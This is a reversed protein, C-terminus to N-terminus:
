KNNEIDNDSVGDPLRVGGDAIAFTRRFTLSDRELPPLTTSQTSKVGEDSTAVANDGDGTSVAPGSTGIQTTFTTGPSSVVPNVATTIASTYGPSTSNIIEGMNGSLSFAALRYNALDTNAGAEYNAATIQATVIKDKGATADVFQGLTQNVTISEGAVLGGLKYNGATLIATTSGDGTKSVPGQLTVDFARKDIDVTTTATTSYVYNGADLGTAAIGSISVTKGTGANKDSASGSGTFAVQDGELIDNSAVSVNLLASGDYTKGQASATVAVSKAAFDVTTATTASYIYNGADSGSALIGAVAVAKGNGANKDSARGAGSFIVADGTVIGSSSLVVSVSTSGDYIKDVGEADVAVSKRAVNTKTLAQTNYAYNGEDTGSGTIDSVIVVKDQGANKDSTAGRGSFTVTDGDVIGNSSLTILVSTAGDYIKDGSQANVVISKKAIDVIATGTSAYTYNGADSGLAAINSVAVSKGAGANKDVANGNGFFAVTDGTIIGDSALDVGVVASGDYTKNQGIGTVTISKKAINVSATTPAAVDYNSADTGTAAFNSMTVTKGQGANKDSATGTASFAVTDGDIIGASALDVGVSTSGDYTKNQGSAAVTIAKKAVDVTTAVPATVDYNSADSGMTAFSGITVTKGQGANKDSAAGTGTFTVTDGNVIGNSSLGVSVTASGDYTKNQGTAAVSIAKKAVDAMTSATTSFDYNAADADTSAIGSVNVLKGTGANKNAMAGTGTFTVTDGNLIDSSAVTVAIANSGDYTKNTGTAAVSIAKKAVDATTSATTSYDYNAADADTSAINSVSVTKAQGANKNAMTGTGTFTVTDGQIIDSSAITVNASTSGDYTKNTGTAAVSIAKKAVDATTSATTSFDYNAADADTSAIGSVSVTKAQGANKNAMAGAGTFTVMDSNLIDSSAVTVAIANSGDYTKNTGTAAVSITKKAVDATTSATTSFDYNAADADTSAINSVSVTKAQGANKNAMAGAGTFTVTDGNLIDSSAVTVAIANSGDYTKNTGTAAVSIAKRAIDGLLTEGALQYNSVLGGHNGDSLTYTTLVSKGNAATKNGFAGSASVGLEENLVLGDLTGATISASTLGDYTKGTVASGTISLAKKTVEVTLSIPPTLDYNHADAGSLVGNGAVTVAKGAGVNKDSISGTIGSADITLVDGHQASGAGATGTLSVDTTGDYERNVASLGTVAISAKTVDINESSAAYQYGLSDTVTGNLVYAYTGVQRKGAGSLTGPAGLTLTQNTTLKAFTDGDIFGSYNGAGLTVTPDAAGYVISSLNSVVSIVPARSYFFWNGSAAYSPSAGATYTENYHKNYNTLGETTFTPNASYVLYRSGTGLGIGAAGRNNVFNRGAALTITNSTGTTQVNGAGSGLNIDATNGRAEITINGSSRVTNDVTVGGAKIDISSFATTAGVNGITLDANAGGDYGTTDITLAGTGNLAKGNLTLQGADNPGNEDNPRDTFFSINSNTAAFTSDGEFTINGGNTSLAGTLTIVGGSYTQAGETAIDGLTIARDTSSYIRLTDLYGAAGYINGISLNGSSTNDSKGITLAVNGMYSFGAISGITMAGSGSDLTLSRNARLSGDFTMAGNTATLDGWLNIDRASYSQAGSTKVVGLNIQRSYNYYNNYNNPDPYPGTLGLTSITLTSATFESTSNQGGLTVSGALAYLQSASADFTAARDAQHTVEGDFRIDGVFMANNSADTDMVFDVNNYGVNTTGKAWFSGGLLVQRAYLNIMGYQPAHGGPAYQSSFADLRLDSLYSGARNDIMDGLSISGVFGQGSSANLNLGYSGGRSSISGGYSAYNTNLSIAGSQGQFSGSGIYVYTLLDIGHTGTLSIDRGSRSLGGNLELIKAYLSFDGGGYATSEDLRITRQSANLSFNRSNYGLVTNNDGVILETGDDSFNIDDDGILGIAITQNTQELGLSINVSKLYDQTVEQINVNGQQTNVTLKANEVGAAEAIQIDYGNAGLTSATPTPDNSVNFTVDGGTIQAIPNGSDYLNQAAIVGTANFRTIGLTLNTNYFEGWLTAGAGMRISDDGLLIDGDRANLTLSRFNRSLDIGTTSGFTAGDSAGGSVTPTVIASGDTTFDIHDGGSFLISHTGAAKAYDLTIYGFGDNVSKVYTGGGSNYVNLSGQYLGEETYNDALELPNSSTGINGGNLTINGGVIDAVGDDTGTINTASVTLSASGMDVASSAFNIDAASLTLNIPYTGDYTDPAFGSLGISNTAVQLVGAGDTTLDVHGGGTNNADALINIHHESSVQSGISVNLQTSHQAGIEKVWSSGGSNSVSLSGYANGANLPDGGSLTIAQVSSGIDGATANLSVGVRAVINADTGSSTSLISGANIALGSGRQSNVGDNYYVPYTSQRFLLSNADLSVIGNVSIDFFGGAGVDIQSGAAMTFDQGSKTNNYGSLAGAYFNGGNTLIKGNSGFAINGTANNDSDATLVVNLRNSTSSISNNINIDGAALLSLTAAEGSSKLIDANVNIDGNSNGTSGTTITVATGANLSADIASALIASNVNPDYDANYATGSAGAEVISVDVPDLLWKGAEGSVASADVAGMAQLQLRGSTEVKGGNGGLAGGTAKIDGYFGTRDESWLVVTGGDGSQRASVDIVADPAVLVTSANRISADKGQWGGGVLVTGGGTAGSADIRSGEALTITDGTLVVKGGVTALSSAEIIGTNNVSSKALADFADSTLYIRGSDAKIVGGNSVLADYAGQEITLDLGGTDLRITVDNAAVLRVEGKAATIAGDNIVQAGVLAVYGGKGATLTGENIVAGNGTGSFRYKGAMFDEVSIDRTSAMIAAASVQSGKAFLVGNPNVLFVQGNAQLVGYIKSADGGLVRNLAIASANPQNFVVKGDKGIDFAQWDIAANQTTQNITQTNGSQTITAHGGVVQGGTPLVASQPESTRIVPTPQVAPSVGGPDALAGTAASLLALAAAALSAFLGGKRKGRKQSVEPIPIYCGKSESWVLRYFRNMGGHDYM